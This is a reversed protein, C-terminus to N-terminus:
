ADARARQTGLQVEQLMECMRHLAGFSAKRLSRPHLDGGETRRRDRDAIWREAGRGPHV